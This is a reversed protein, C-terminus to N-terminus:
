AESPMLFGSHMKDAWFSVKKCHWTVKETEKGDKWGKCGLVRRAETVELRELEMEEGDTTQLALVGPCEDINKHM